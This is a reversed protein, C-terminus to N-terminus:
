RFYKTTSEQLYKTEINKPLTGELLYFSAINFFQQDKSASHKTSFM